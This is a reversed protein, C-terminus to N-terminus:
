FFKSLFFIRHRYKDSQNHSFARYAVTSSKRSIKIYNRSFYPILVDNSTMIFLRPVLQCVPRCWLAPRREIYRRVDVVDQVANVRERVMDRAQTAMNRVEGELTGIKSGLDTQTRQIQERLDLSSERGVGAAADM